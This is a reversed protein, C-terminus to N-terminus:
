GNVELGSGFSRAVMLSCCKNQRFSLRAPNTEATLADVNRDIPDSFKEKTWEISTVTYPREFREKLRQVELEYDANSSSLCIISGLADGTLFCRLYTM